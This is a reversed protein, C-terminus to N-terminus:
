SAMHEVEQVKDEQVLEELKAVLFAALSFGDVQDKFRSNPFGLCEMVFKEYWSKSKNVYVKGNECRAAPLLARARKDKDPQVLQVNVMVRSMVNRVLTRTMQQHFRSEEIGVIIPRAIKISQTMLRETASISLRQRLVDVIYMNFDIDIAVTVCVTFCARKNESFALDWAQIIRCKPFTETWFNSPLDQFIAESSFVDGGIGSPDGQHIMNFEAITLRRRERQVYDQGLRSPWLLEGPRRGLPDNDQAIMPTRVYLWDGSREALEIMHSALDFEGFRTMIAVLWGTDPQIRPIVTQDIYRKAIRLVSESQANKQDLPDDLIIGNARAGMISANLGVSKYTPDKDVDPIGFLYRGDSSWGRKRYPRASKDSFVARYRENNELVNAITSDWTKAMDDSSTITIVHHDPHNGIYHACRIINNWTSKATNPPAILLIKNQPIRRQIVDDVAGNWYRHFIEPKLGFVYDGFSNIDRRMKRYKREVEDRTAGLSRDFVRATARKKAKARTLVERLIPDAEFAPVSYGPLKPPM